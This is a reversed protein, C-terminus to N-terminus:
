LVFFFPFNYEQFSKELCFFPLFKETYFSSLCLKLLNSFFSFFLMFTATQKEGTKDSSKKPPKERDSACLKEGGLTEIGGKRKERIRTEECPSLLFLRPLVSFILDQRGPSLLPPWLMSVTEKLLRCCCCRKGMAWIGM